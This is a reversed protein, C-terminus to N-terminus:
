ALCLAERVTDIAQGSKVQDATFALPRWGALVALNQKECDRTYGAGRTHRGQTWVGGQLEIALSAWRIVFDWRFRRGPILRAEREYDIGYARLQVEFQRELRSGM